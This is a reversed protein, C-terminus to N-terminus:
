HRHDCMRITDNEHLHRCGPVVIMLVTDAMSVEESKMGPVDFSRSVCIKLVRRGTEHAKADLPGTNGQSCM